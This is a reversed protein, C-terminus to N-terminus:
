PLRYLARFRNGLQIGVLTRGGLALALSAIQRKLWNGQAYPWGSESVQWVLPQLAPFRQRFFRAQAPASTRFLHTPVGGGIEAPRLRHKVGGFMRAAWYVLSPNIELPGEVFLLGCPKLLPLLGAITAAPDPLHELVDGLHLVDFSQASSLREMESVTAVPCGVSVAASAAAAADFEVGYPVFGETKVAQLFHGVGCGYDLVSCGPQAHQTLLAAAQRYPALDSAAYYADHYEAKGYMQAFTAADPIPDVFVTRCEGCRHYQFMQDAFSIAYPFSVGQAAGSCLPCPRIPATM